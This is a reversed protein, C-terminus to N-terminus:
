VIHHSASQFRSYGSFTSSPVPYKNFLKSHKNKRGTPTRTLFQSPIQNEISISRTEFDVKIEPEESIEHHIFNLWYEEFEKNSITDSKTAKLLNHLEDLTLERGGRKELLELTYKTMFRIRELRMTDYTCSETRPVLGFLSYWPRYILYESNCM